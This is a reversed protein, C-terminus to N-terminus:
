KNIHTMCWDNPVLILSFGYFICHLLAKLWMVSITTTNSNRCWVSWEMDFWCLLQCSWKSKLSNQIGVSDSSYTFFTLNKRWMDIIKLTVSNQLKLNEKIKGMIQDVLVSTIRIRILTEFENKLWRFAGLHPKWRIHWLIEPCMLISVMVKARLKHFIYQYAGMFKKGWTKHMGCMRKSTAPNCELCCWESDQTVQLSWYMVVVVSLVGEYLKQCRTTSWDPQPM